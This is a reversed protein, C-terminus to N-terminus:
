ERAASHSVSQRRWMLLLVCGALTLATLAAGGLFYTSTYVLRLEGDGPPVEIGLFAHDVRLVRQRAGDITATWGPYYPVSLRLLSPRSAKYHLRYEEEGFSVISAAADPNARRLDAPENVLTLKAPDLSELRALSAANGAAPEIARAFYARPLTDEYPVVAGLRTDLMRSVNLGKLLKPNKSVTQVYQGYYSLELPNYGYTTELRLDLPHNLPGFVTLREPAHFRTLPPQYPVVKQQTLAEANGYREEFSFRAYASPNALSNWYFVDAFVFAVLAFRIAPKPHTREFLWAMGAAALISLGLTVVFWGHIPARVRHLGPVIAGIRYLGWAPGLMYWVPPLILALGAFRVRVDRLGMVSLPVLLVGSYLYYNDPGPSAGEALSFLGTGNPWLLNVLAALRLTRETSAGYDAGARGSLQTLELGPLTQIASILVALLTMGFLFRALRLTAGPQLFSQIVAYLGTACFAYLATQFHGALILCGGALGAAAMWRPLSGTISRQLFWLLWPLWSAACYQGVHQSHDAFFGSFAYFLAGAFAATRSQVLALLLLFAGAGALLSHFALEAQIRKATIGALFFPWNLPYWAGVQPDALFPFGSFIYPSWFPLDGGRVHDAFYKQSSYHVDIADWQPTATESTLPIWQFILVLLAIGVLWRPGALLDFGRTTAALGATKERRRSGSPRSKGM